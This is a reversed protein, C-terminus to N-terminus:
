PSASGLELVPNAVHLAVQRALYRHWSPLSFLGRTRDQVQVTGNLTFPQDADAASVAFSAELTGSAYVPSWTMPLRALTVVLTLDRATGDDLHATVCPSDALAELM